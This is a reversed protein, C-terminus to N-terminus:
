PLQAVSTLTAPTGGVNDLSVTWTAGPALCPSAYALRVRNAAVTRQLSGALGPGTAQITALQGDYGPPLTWAWSLATRANAAGCPTTVLHTQLRVPVSSAGTAPTAPPAATTVVHPRAVPTAARGESSGSRGAVLVGLVAAVAVVVAGVVLMRKIPVGGPEDDVPESRAPARALPPSVPPALPALRLEPQTYESVPPLPLQAAAVRADHEDIELVLERIREPSAHASRLRGLLAYLEQQRAELRALRDDVYALELRTANV